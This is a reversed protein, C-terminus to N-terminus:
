RFGPLVLPSLAEAIVSHRQLRRDLLQASAANTDTPDAHGFPSSVLNDLVQDVLGVDIYTRSRLKWWMCAHMGRHVMLSIPPQTLSRYGVCPM